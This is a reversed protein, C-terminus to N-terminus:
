ALYRELYAHHAPLQLVATHMLRAIKAIRALLDADSGQAALLAQHPPYEGQGIFTCAWDAEEFMEDDNRMVRGRYRFMEFREALSDPLTGDAAVGPRGGLLYRMLAFDRASDQSKGVLRNYETAMRPNDGRDPFLGVLKTIGEDILRLGTGVLPELFGAAPGVAVCNARWPERYRGNTFSMARPASAAEFGAALRKGAAEPSLRAREFLLAYDNVGRLPVESVWGGPQAAVRTCPAMAMPGKGRMVVAGDCPLWHAWSDFPVALSQGLLASRAGTCDIFFDGEIRQGDRSRLAAIRGGDDREVEALDAEIGTVGRREAFGRLLRTYAQTDFHYAYEYTSLVSRPDQTPHAFRGLKSAIAPVSLEDIDLAHGAAKLRSVFHHFGVAEFRAGIEGFPWLYQPKRPSFGHFSTGLKFTAGCERMFAREDIGLEEHAVVQSPLTSGCLADLPDADGGAPAARLVRVRLERGTMAHSLRAACYWGALGGGAIVIDRVAESM